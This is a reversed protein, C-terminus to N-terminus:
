HGSTMVLVQELTTSGEKAKGLAVDRLTQMGQGIAIRGIEMSSARAIIAKRIEDSAMMAEIV